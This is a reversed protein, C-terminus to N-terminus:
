FVQCQVCSCHNIKPIFVTHNEMRGNCNFSLRRKKVAHQGSKCCNCQKEFYPAVPIVVDFSRCTGHCTQVKTTTPECNPWVIPIRKRERKCQGGQLSLGNSYLLLITFLLFAKFMKVPEPLGAINLMVNVLIAIVSFSRPQFLCM